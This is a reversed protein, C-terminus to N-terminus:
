ESLWEGVGVRSKRAVMDKESPVGEAGLKLAPRSEERSGDGALM